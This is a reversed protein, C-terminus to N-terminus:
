YQGQVFDVNPPPRLTLKAQSMPSPSPYVLQAWRSSLTSSHSLRPGSGTTIHPRASSSLHATRAHSAGVDMLLDLVAGFGRKLGTQRSNLSVFVSLSLSLSDDDNFTVRTLSHLPHIRALCAHAANNATACVM